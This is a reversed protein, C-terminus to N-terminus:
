IHHTIIILGTELYGLILSDDDAVRKLHRVSHLLPSITVTILTFAPCLAFLRRAFKPITGPTFINFFFDAGKLPGRSIITFPVESTMPLPRASFIM